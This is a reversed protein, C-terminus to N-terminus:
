DYIDNEKQIAEAIKAKLGEESQADKLKKVCERCITTGAIVTLPPKDTWCVSCSYYTM